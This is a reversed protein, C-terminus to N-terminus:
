VLQASLDVLHHVAIYVLAHSLEYGTHQKHVLHVHQVDFTERVEM